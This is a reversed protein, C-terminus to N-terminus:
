GQPEELKNGDPETENRDTYARALATLAPPLEESTDLEQRLQLGIAALMSRRLEAVWGPLHGKRTFREAM